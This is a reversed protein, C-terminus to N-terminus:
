WYRIPGVDLHVFGRRPYYGVGGRKLRIAIRRLTSARYGPLRIDAARGQKHYSTRSARKGKRRLIANTEPSRYASLVHLPEQTKCRISVAHLLELLNTDIQKTENTRRDRLFHNIEEIATGIYHGNKWYVLSIHEHSSPQILYLSKKQPRPCLVNALVPIPQCYGAFGSFLIWKIALRRDM